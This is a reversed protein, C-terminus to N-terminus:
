EELIKKVKRLQELSYNDINYSGVAKVFWSRLMDREIDDNVAQESLYLKEYDGWDKNEVLFDDNEERKYFEVPFHGGEPTAKGKHMYQNIFEATERWAVITPFDASDDRSARDVALNFSTCPTGQQTYRLEPDATLRGTLIVVNM